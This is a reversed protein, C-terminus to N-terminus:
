CDVGCNQIEFEITVHSVNNQLLKSKIKTKLHELAVPNMHDPVVAHFTVVNYTGDMSWSHIDHIEIIETFGAMQKRLEDETLNDPVAQLIIKLVARINKYVNFLIFFGIGISLIPDLIPVDAFSMILAGVLVAVWGLVDELFHLSIAKESLTQGKKLRLLAAGNAAIGIVALIIMGPVYPQQPNAMRDIAEIIILISGLTLVITTIFAGLLSFRKYGYTYQQDKKKESKKQLYYALGLSLSDGFDHLADSMIAISNTYFGGALELLAFGTNLWFAVKINGTAHHHHAHHHHDHSHHPDM